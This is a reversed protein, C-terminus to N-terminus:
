ATFASAYAIRGRPIPGNLVLIRFFPKESETPPEIASEPAFGFREYYRPDGLVAIGSAGRQRLAEVGAAILRGGTGQRQRGPIVSVPAMQFWNSARGAITVPSFGIHGIVCGDPDQAILSLTLEGCDRLRDVLDAEDGDSFPMPAFATEIVTRIAAVDGPAEARISCASM